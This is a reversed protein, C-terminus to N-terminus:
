SREGPHSLTLLPAPPRGLAELRRLFPRFRNSKADRELTAMGACYKSLSGERLKCARLVDIMPSRGQRAQKVEVIVVDPFARRRGGRTFTLNLDLTIREAAEPRVLTVRTYEVLMSQMLSSASLTDSIGLMGAAALEDLPNAEQALAVRQKVTRGGNAKLKVELYRVPAGAYQRVRVKYRRMRGAHHAHYLALDPTDYYCTSYATMRRGEVELVRYRDSLGGLIDALKELPILFKRDVRDMLEAPGLDDLGIPEFAGLAEAALPMSGREAVPNAEIDDHRVAIV